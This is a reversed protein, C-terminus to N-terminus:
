WKLMATRLIIKGPPCYPLDQSTQIRPKAAFRELPTQAHRLFFFISNQFFFQNGAIEALFMRFFKDTLDPLIEVKKLIFLRMTIDPINEVDM